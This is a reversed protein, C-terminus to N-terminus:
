GLTHLNIGVIQHHIHVWLRAYSCTYDKFTSNKQDILIQIIQIFNNVSGGPTQWNWEFVSRFVFFELITDRM